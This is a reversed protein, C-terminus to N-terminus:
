KALPTGRVWALGCELCANRRHHRQELDPYGKRPLPPKDQVRTAARCGITGEVDKLGPVAVRRSVVGRRAEVSSKQQSDPASSGAGRLATGPSTGFRAKAHEGRRAILRPDTVVDM